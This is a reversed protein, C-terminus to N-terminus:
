EEEKDSDEESEESEESGEESETDEEETETEEETDEEESSQEESSEEDGEELDVSELDVQSDLGDANSKAYALAEEITEEVPLGESTALNKAKRVAQQVLTESTTENVIGANVALNFAGSAASKVDTRYQETDIDLEDATFLEGESYAVDLDLGIELPEIGLQNLIEADDATIEEGKEIIVGPEQVHISGEQVQVQLGRQQLKGLMPGPGIGTDGDPVEIDNPATEGGQAAASTKNQKILSYLQFPDKESFIFAPQIADNDELQEIDEKDAKEIAIEMLTKRSMRVKAFEKMEKKIQQLQKAPLNHMDLIGIVPNSEIEEKFYEVKQEKEERSLKKPKPQVM